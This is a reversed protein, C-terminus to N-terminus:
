INLLIDIVSHWNFTQEQLQLDNTLLLSLNEELPGPNWEWCEYLSKYERYNTPSLIRDREQSGQASCAWAVFIHM